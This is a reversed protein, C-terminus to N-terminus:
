RGIGKQFDQQAIWDIVISAIEEHNDEFMLMHGNGTIGRDPLWIFDGGLYRATAEDVSRPHRPDMSGTIVLIPRNGVQGPENISLGSGAINFRENMIQASEPVISRRYAEFAHQPFRKGNSWYDSIFTQEAWVAASTDSYVPCGAEEDYRLSAIFERDDPLVPVINAPAGPAIGVVARVIEPFREALVWAIPGAASHALLIVPGIEQILVAVSDVVDHGSLLRFDARPPSRGHGPWDPVYVPHGASAFIDAWGRRGDPTSLYCTGTHGGGHLMVIPLGGPDSPVVRDVYIPHDFTGSYLCRPPSPDAYSM